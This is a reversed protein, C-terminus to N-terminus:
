KIFPISMTRFYNPSIAEYNSYPNAAQEQEGQGEVTFPYDWGVTGSLPRMLIVAASEVGPLAEIRKLLQEFFAKHNESKPYRSQVLPLRFTLIHDTKYGPDLSQLSSFSRLLLGAGI